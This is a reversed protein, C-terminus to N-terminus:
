LFCKIAEKQCTWIALMVVQTKLGNNLLILSILVSANAISHCDIQYNLLSSLLQYPIVSPIHHVFSHHRDQPPSLLTAQSKMM